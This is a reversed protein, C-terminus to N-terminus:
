FNLKTLTHSNGMKIKESSVIPIIEYQKTPETTWQDHLYRSIHCVHLKLIIDQMVHHSTQSIFLKLWTQLIPHLTTECVYNNLPNDTKVVMLLHPWCSIFSAVLECVNIESKM